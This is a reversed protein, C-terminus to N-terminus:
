APAQEAEIVRVIGALEDDFPGPELRREDGATSVVFVYAWALSTRSLPQPRIASELNWEALKLAWSRSNGMRLRNVLSVAVEPGPDAGELFVSTGGKVILGIM